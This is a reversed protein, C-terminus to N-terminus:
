APPGQQQELPASGRRGSSVEEFDVSANGIRLVRLRGQLMDGEGVIFVDEGDTFFALRGHGSPATGYGFFKMNPPLTLPPPPPPPQPEPPPAPDPIPKKTEVPPPPPLVNFPNRGNTKYDTRRIRELKDWRIRSNEVPIPLYKQPAAIAIGASGGPKGGYYYWVAAAMLALLILTLGEKTQKTM